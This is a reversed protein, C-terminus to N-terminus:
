AESRKGTVEVTDLLVLMSELVNNYTNIVLMKDKEPLNHTQTIDHDSLPKM